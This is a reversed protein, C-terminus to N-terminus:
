ELGLKKRLEANEKRLREALLSKLRKNEEELALLDKLDNGESVPAVAKKWHYYTQESIGARKVASRINEGRGISQEIEALLQAREKASYVKRGSRVAAAPADAAQSAPKAGSKRASPKPEAKAKRPRRTKKKTEPTEAETANQAPEAEQPNAM